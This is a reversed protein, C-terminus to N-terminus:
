PSEDEWRRMMVYLGGFVGIALAAFCAGALATAFSLHGGITGLMLGISAFAFLFVLAFVAAMRRRAAVGM